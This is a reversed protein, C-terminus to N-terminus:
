ARRSAVLNAISGVTRFNRPAIDANELKVGYTKEVHVVVDMILLSDLLESELLDTDATIEEGAPVRAAVFRLLDDRTSADDPM